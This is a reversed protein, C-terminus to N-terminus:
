NLNRNLSPIIQNNIITTVNDINNKSSILQSDTYASNDINLNAGLLSVASNISNSASVLSNSIAYMNNIIRRYREKKELDDTNM